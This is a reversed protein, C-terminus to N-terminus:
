KGLVAPFCLSHVAYKSRQPVDRGKDYVGESINNKMATLSYCWKAAAVVPQLVYFLSVRCWDTCPSNRKLSKKVTVVRNM